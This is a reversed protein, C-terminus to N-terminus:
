DEVPTFFISGCLPELIVYGQPLIRTLMDDLAAMIEDHRADVPLTVTGAVFPELGTYQARVCWPRIAVQDVM